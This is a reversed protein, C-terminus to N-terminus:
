SFTDVDPLEGNSVTSSTDPVALVSLVNSLEQLLMSFLPIMPLSSHPKGEYAEHM